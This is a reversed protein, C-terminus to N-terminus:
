WRCGKRQVASCGASSWATTPQLNPRGSRISRKRLKRLLEVHMRVLDRDPFRLKLVPRRVNETGATAFGRLRRHVHLRQMGLDSVNSFSKKSPASLLAPNSLAFRHNVALV